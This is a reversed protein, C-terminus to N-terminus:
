KILVYFKYMVSVSLRRVPVYVDDETLPLFSLLHEYHLMIYIGEQTKMTKLVSVFDLVSYYLLCEKFFYVCQLCLMHAHPPINYSNRVM